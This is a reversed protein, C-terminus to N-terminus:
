NHQGQSQHQRGHRRQRFPFTFRILSRFLNLFLFRFLSFSSPIASWDFLIFLLLAIFGLQFRLRYLCRCRWDACAITRSTMM